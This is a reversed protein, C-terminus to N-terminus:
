CGNWWTRSTNWMPCDGEVELVSAVEYALKAATEEYGPKYTADFAKGIAGAIKDEDFPVM